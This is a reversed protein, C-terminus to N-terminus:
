AAAALRWRGIFAYCAREPTLTSEALVFETVPWDIPELKPLPVCRACHVNRLLTVHATFDGSELPLDAGALREYLQGVLTLLQLPLESCGVWAIRKHRWCDLRDLRLAFAPAVVQEAAQRLIAIHEAPVDGIFALTIHLSERLMRRGGGLAHLQKGVQDFGELVAKDPWLAFFVRRREREPM